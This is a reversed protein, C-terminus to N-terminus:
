ILWRKIALVYIATALTMAVGFLIQGLTVPWPQGLINMGLLSGVVSPILGLFSIVALFKLFRNMEFSKLNIHLEIVSKLDEKMSEVTTYLSDTGQALDAVFPERALSVNHLKTRGDAFEHVLGKFRRLDLAAASMERRLWFTDRLFDSGEGMAELRRAEEDFRQAVQRYRDRVLALIAAAIRTRFPMTSLPEAQLVASRQLDLPGDVATLLGSDTMIALLRGWRVAPLGIDPVTPVKVVFATCRAGQRAKGHSDESLLRELDQESLGAARALDGFQQRDFNTGHAWSSSGATSSWAVFSDWDSDVSLYPESEKLVSLAPRGHEDQERLQHRLKGVAVTGARTGFAVTRVVRLMRLMLTGSAVGSVQPLLAVAPGLITLADVIRWPSRAWARFDPAVAGSIIFDAAFASVLGWEVVTLATEVHASVDFVMPGLAIAMAVLALLGMIGDNFLRAVGTLLNRAHVM